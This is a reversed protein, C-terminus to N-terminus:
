PTDSVVLRYSRDAIAGLADRVRITFATIGDDTPVGSIEGRALSLALGGPLIGDVVSWSYPPTGGAAALTFLLSRKVIAYPLVATTIGLHPQVGIYSAVSVTSGGSDRVRTTFSTAGTVSPTGTITCDRNV